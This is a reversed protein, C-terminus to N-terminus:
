LVWGCSANIICLCDRLYCPYFLIGDKDRFNSAVQNFHLSGLCEGKVPIEEHLLVNWFTVIERMSLGQILNLFTQVTISYGTTIDGKMKVVWILIPFIVIENKKKSSNSAIFCTLNSPFRSDWSGSDQM